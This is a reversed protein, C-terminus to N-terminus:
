SVIAGCVVNVFILVAPAAVLINVAANAVVIDVAVDDIIHRGGDLLPLTHLTNALGTSCFAAHRIWVVETALLTIDLIGAKWCM